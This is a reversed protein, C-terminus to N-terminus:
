ICHHLLFLLLINFPLKFKLKLKCVCFLAYTQFATHFSFFFILTCHYQGFQVSCLSRDHFYSLLYQICCLHPTRPIHLPVYPSLQVTYFILWLPSSTNLTLHNDHYKPVSVYILITAAKCVSISPSLSLHFSPSFHWLIVELPIISNNLFTFIHKIFHIRRGLMILSRYQIPHLLLSLM